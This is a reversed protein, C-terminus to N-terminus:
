PIPQVLSSALLSMIQTITYTSNEATYKDTEPPCQAFSHCNEKDDAIHHIHGFPNKIGCRGNGTGKGIVKGFSVSQLSTNQKGQPHYQKEHTETNLDGTLVKQM